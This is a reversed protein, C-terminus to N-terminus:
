RIEESLLNEAKSIASKMKEHVDEMNKKEQTMFEVEEEHAMTDSLGESYRHMWDMMEKDAVRLDTINKEIIRILQTHDASSDNQLSDAVQTLQKQLRVLTGMKAMAKDHVQNVETRLAEREAEESKCAPVLLIFGVLLYWIIKRM